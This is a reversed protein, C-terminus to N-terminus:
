GSKAIEYRSRFKIYKVKLERTSLDRLEQYKKVASEFDNFVEGNNYFECYGSDDQMPRVICYHGDAGDARNKIEM